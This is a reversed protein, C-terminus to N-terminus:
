LPRNEHTYSEEGAATTPGCANLIRTITDLAGILAQCAEPELPGIVAGIQRNSKQIFDETLATGLETLHLAFSRSDTKSATRTLLGKQEFGRIIRSLYSKDLNTARAIHAANCGNHEYLEFLVRAETASYDSGLYHNGLLEFTPMYFRTFERIRSVAAERAAQSATDM